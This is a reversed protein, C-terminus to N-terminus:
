YKGCIIPDEQLQNLEFNRPGIVYVVVTVVMLQIRGVNRPQIQYIIVTVRMEDKHIHGLTGNRVVRSRSVM